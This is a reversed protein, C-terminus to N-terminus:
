PKRAASGVADCLSAFGGDHLRRAIGDLEVLALAATLQNTTAILVSRGHLEEMRGGLSSGRALDRLIVSAGAGWLVRESLRGAASLLTWLSSGESQSM